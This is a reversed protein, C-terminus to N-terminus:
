VNNKLGKRVDPDKFLSNLMAVKIYIPMESIWEGITVTPASEIEEIPIATDGFDTHIMKEFPLEILKDADILRM